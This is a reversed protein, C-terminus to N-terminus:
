FMNNRNKRKINDPIYQTKVYGSKKPIYVINRDVRTERKDDILMWDSGIVGRICPLRVQLLIYGEM